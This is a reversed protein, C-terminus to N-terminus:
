DLATSPAVRIERGPTGGGGGARRLRGLSELVVLAVALRDTSSAEFITM